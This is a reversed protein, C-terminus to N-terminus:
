EIFPAISITDWQKAFTYLWCLKWDKVTLHGSQIAKIIELTNKVTSTMQHTGNDRLTAVAHWSRYMDIALLEAYFVFNDVEEYGKAAWDSICSRDPNAYLKRKKPLDYQYKIM